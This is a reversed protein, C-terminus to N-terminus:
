FCQRASDEIQLKNQASTYSSAFESECIRLWWDPWLRIQSDKSKHQM